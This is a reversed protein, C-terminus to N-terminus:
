PQVMLHFILISKLTEQKLNRHHISLIRPRDWLLALPLGKRQRDITPVLLWCLLNRPHFNRLRGVRWHQLWSILPSKRSTVRSLEKLPPMSAPWPVWTMAHSKKLPNLRNLMLSSLTRRLTEGTWYRLKSPLLLSSSCSHLRTFFPTGLIRHRHDMTYALKIRLCRIDQGLQKQVPTVNTRSIRTLSSCSRM